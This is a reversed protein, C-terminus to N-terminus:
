SADPSRCHRQEEDYIVMWVNANDQTGEQLVRAVGHLSGRAGGFGELEHRVVWGIEDETIVAQPVFRCAREQRRYLVEGAPRNGHHEDGSVDLGIGNRM